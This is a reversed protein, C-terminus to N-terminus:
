AVEQLPRITLRANANSRDQTGRHQLGSRMCPAAVPGFRRKMPRQNRKIDVQLAATLVLPAGAAAGSADTGVGTTFISLMWSGKAVMTM